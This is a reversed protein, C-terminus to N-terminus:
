GWTSGDDTSRKIYINEAKGGPEQQDFSIIATHPSIVGLSPRGSFLTDHTLRSDPGWTAGNDASRRYYIATCEPLSYCRLTGDRGDMWAVHVSDHLVAISPREAGVTSGIKSTGAVLKVEPDWAAGHNM